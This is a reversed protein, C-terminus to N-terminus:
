RVDVSEGVAITGLGVGPSIEHFHLLLSAVRHQSVSLPHLMAGGAVVMVECCLADQKVSAMSEM